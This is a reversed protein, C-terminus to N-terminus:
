SEDNENKFFNEDFPEASNIIIEEAIARILPIEIELAKDNKFPEYRSKDGDESHVIANRVSYVRDRINEYIIDEESLDFNIIERGGVFDPPNNKYYSIVGPTISDITEKLSTLNKVYKKLCLLLANRDTSQKKIERIINNCLEPRYKEDSKEDIIEKIRGCADEELADEFYFEAIHYFSLYKTFPNNSEIAQFYYKTLHPKYHFSFFEKNRRIRSLQNPSFDKLSFSINYNYSINFLYSDLMRNFEDFSHNKQSSIKITALSSYTKFFDELSEPLLDPNIPINKMYFDTEHDIHQPYKYILFM